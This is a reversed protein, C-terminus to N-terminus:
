GQRYTIPSTGSRVGRRQNEGAYVDKILDLTALYLGANHGKLVRGISGYDESQIIQGIPGVAVRVDGDVALCIDVNVVAEHPM